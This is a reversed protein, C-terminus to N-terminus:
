AGQPIRGKCFFPILSLIGLFIFYFAPAFDTGTLDILFLCVFPATGGFLANCANYSIGVGTYRVPAPFLESLLAPILANNLTLVMSLMVKMVLFLIVDEKCAFYFMFCPVVLVGIVSYLFLKRVGYRDGLKGFFPLFITSVALSSANILLITSFHLHIAKKLFVISFFYLVYFTGASVSALLFSLFFQKKYNRFLTKVPNKLIHHKAVAERFVPTEHIKRRLYWGLLGLVGGLLFPVRWGWQNLATYSIVNECAYIEISSVIFGLQAGFISWSGFFAKQGKPAIETLYCMIGGIEGGIPIGQIVRLITLLIFGTIGIQLYTPLMGMLLTPITIFFISCILGEKRGLRDGIWGFIISGLPRAIFGVSFVLFTNINSYLATEPFFIKYLVSTFYGYLAYDYWDLFNGISCATIITRTKM